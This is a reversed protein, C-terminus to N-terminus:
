LFTAAKMVYSHLDKMSEELREAFQTGNDWLDDALESIDINDEPRPINAILEYEVREADDGAITTILPTRRTEVLLIRTGYRGIKTSWRRIVRHAVYVVDGIEPALIPQVSKGSERLIPNRFIAESDKRSVFSRARVLFRLDPMQDRVYHTMLYRLWPRYVHTTEFNENVEAELAGGLKNSRITVKYSTEAFNNNNSKSSSSSSKEEQENNNTSTSTAQNMPVMGLDEVLQEIAQVSTTEHAVAYWMYPHADMLHQQLIWTPCIARSNKAAADWYLVRGAGINIEAERNNAWINSVAWHFARRFRIKNAEAAEIPSIAVASGEPIHACGPLASVNNLNCLGFDSVSKEHLFQYAKPSLSQMATNVQGMITRREGPSGFAIFDNDTSSKSLYDSADAVAQPLPTGDPALQTNRGVVAWDGYFDADDFIQQLPATYQNLPPQVGGNQQQQQSPSSSSSAAPTSTTTTAAVWLDAARKNEGADKSISGVTDVDVNTNGFANPNEKSMFDEVLRVLATKKAKEPVQVNNSELFSTLESANLSFLNGENWLAWITSKDVSASSQFRRSHYHLKGSSSALSSSSLIYSSLHFRRFM